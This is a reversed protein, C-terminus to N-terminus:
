TKVKKLRKSGPIDISSYDVSLGCAQLAKKTAYVKCFGKLEKQVNKQFKELETIENIVSGIKRTSIEKLAKATDGKGLELENLALDLKQLEVTKKLNEEVKPDVSMTLGALFEMITRPDTNGDIKLKKIAVWDEYNAIFQIYNDSSM